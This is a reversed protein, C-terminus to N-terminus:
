RVIRLDNAFTNLVNIFCTKLEGFRMASNFMLLIQKLREPSAHKTLNVFM